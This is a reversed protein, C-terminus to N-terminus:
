MWGLEKLKPILVRRGFEMRSRRTPIPNMKFFCLGEQQCWNIVTEDMCPIDREGLLRKFTEWDEPSVDEYKGKTVLVRAGLSKLVTFMFLLEQYQQKNDELLPNRGLKRMPSHFLLDIRYLNDFKNKSKAVFHNMHRPMHDNLVKAEEYYEPGVRLTLTDPSAVQWIIIDTPNIKNDLLYDKMLNIQLENGSGALALNVLEYNLEKAIMDTWGRLSSLCNGLVILKM